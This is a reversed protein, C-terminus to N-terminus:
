ILPCHAKRTEGVQERSKPQIKGNGKTEKRPRELVDEDHVNQVRM